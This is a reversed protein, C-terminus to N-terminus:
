RNFKIKKDILKFLFMGLLMSVLFLIPGVQFSAVATIAPGPCFGALGWGMGFLVAGVMLSKTIETKTPVQWKPMVIPSNRKRVIRYTVFHVAVAGGMVFILSPDWNGFLDLFGVVKHPQTMGSIVLGLGFVLGVVLAVVSEKNEQTM